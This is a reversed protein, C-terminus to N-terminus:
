KIKIYPIYIHRRGEKSAILHENKFVNITVIADDNECTIDIGTYDNSTEIVYEWYGKATLHLNIGDVRGISFEVDDDTTVLFKIKNIDNENDDCSSAFIIFLLYLLIKIYKM